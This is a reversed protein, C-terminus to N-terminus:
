PVQVLIKKKGPEVKVKCKTVSHETSGCKYCIGVAQEMDGSVEPCEEVSHGSRRCKFCIKQEFVRKLFKIGDVLSM